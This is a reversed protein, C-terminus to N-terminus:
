TAKEECKQVMLLINQDSQALLHAFDHPTLLQFKKPISIGQDLFWWFERFRSGLDMDNLQNVPITVINFIRM